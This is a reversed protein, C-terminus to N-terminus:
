QSLYFLFRISLVHDCLTDVSSFTVVILLKVVIDQSVKSSSSKPDTMMSHPNTVKAQAWKPLRSISFKLATGPSSGERCLVRQNVQFLKPTMYIGEPQHYNVEHFKIQDSTAPAGFKEPSLPCANEKIKWLM